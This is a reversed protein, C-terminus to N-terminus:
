KSPVDPSSPTPSGAVLDVFALEDWLPALDEDVALPPANRIGLRTESRLAGIAEAVCRTRESAYRETFARPAREDIWRVCAAFERATHRMQDADDPWWEARLRIAAVARAYEGNALRAAVLRKLRHSLKSVRDQNSPAAAVLKRHLDVAEQFRDAATGRRGLDHELIGVNLLSRSLDEIYEIQDGHMACLGRTIEIAEVYAALAADYDELRKCTIALNNATLALEQLAGRSEANTEVCARCMAIAREHGARSEALRGASEDLDALASVARVLVLQWNERAREAEPRTELITLVRQFCARAPADDPPTSQRGQDKVYMGLSFVAKAFEVHTDPRPDSESAAQEWLAVSERQAAIARVFGEEGRFRLIGAMNQLMGAVHARALKETPDAAFAQRELDLAEQYCRLAADESGMEREVDGLRLLTLALDRWTQPGAHEETLFLRYYSEAEALLRKRVPNAERVRALDSSSITTLLEVLESARRYNREFSRQADQASALHRNARNLQWLTGSFGLLIAAVVAAALSAVVPNRRAWRWARVLRGVPRASVSRGDLFRQLDERLAGVGAYRQRPEKGLCQLCINELDRPVNPQLRTPAVPALDRVQDITLLPSAGRFPPRGTLLEYLIAGLGYVDTAPGVDRRGAAQEPSMYSPTGVVLGSETSMADRTFWKVLGFDAVKPEGAATVLVNSPNLDRHVIGQAHAHEVGEAIRVALSAADRPPMPAGALRRALSNGDVFEMAMFPGSAHRGVEFISVIRPHHLRALARAEDLFASEREPSSWDAGRLVKVAVIRDLATQRAKYVVGMGGRGLEELLEFGAVIPRETPSRTDFGVTACDTRSDRPTRRTHFAFRLLSRHDPFRALYEDLLPSEGAARRLEIELAVLAALCEGREDGAMGELLREIALRSGSLWGAEFRDCASDIRRALSLDRSADSM